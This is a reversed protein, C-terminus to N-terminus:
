EEKSNINNNTHMIYISHAIRHRRREGPWRDNIIVFGHNPFLSLTHSCHFQLIATVPKTYIYLAQGWSKSSVWKEDNWQRM